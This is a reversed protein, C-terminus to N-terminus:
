VFMYRSFVLTIILAHLKRRVGDLTVYGMLGFDIQAEEGPACDAVLVTSRKKHFGLEEHAFRRLTTYGVDVSHDRALLEHIRVLRLPRQKPEGPPPAPPRLWKEIRERERQLAEWQESPSPVPRAQVAVLVEKVVNDSLADDLGVGVLKAADIYRGVTKRDGVGARAIARASQGAQWRRLVEKVDLMYLERYSM